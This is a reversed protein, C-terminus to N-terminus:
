HFIMNELAQLAGAGVRGRALDKLFRFSDHRKRFPPPEHPPHYEKLFCSPEAFSQSVAM